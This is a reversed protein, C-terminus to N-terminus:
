MKDTLHRRLRTLYWLLHMMKPIKIKLPNSTDYTTNPLTNKALVDFSFEHVGAGNVIGGYVALVAKIDTNYNVAEAANVATIMDQVEEQTAPASFENAPDAIYAQYAAENSANIDSLAPLISELDAITVDSAEADDDEGIEDLVRNITFTYDSSDGDAVADGQSNMNLLFGNNPNTALSNETVDVPITVLYRMDGPLIETAKQKLIVMGFNPVFTVEFKSTVDIYGNRADEVKVGSLDSDKLTVKSMTVSVTFRNDGSVDQERLETMLFTINGEGNQEVLNLPSPEIAAQALSMLPAAQLAVGFMMVLVINKLIYKKLSNM